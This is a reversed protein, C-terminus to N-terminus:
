LVNWRKSKEIDRGILWGLSAPVHHQDAPQCYNGYMTSCGFIGSFATLMTKITKESM